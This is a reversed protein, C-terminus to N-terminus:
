FRQIDESSLAKPHFRVERIQGKFWYVQNLRMGLSIRGPGMPGFAINGELEKVGNVYHTMIAGDYALASWYWADGSHNIERDLLTLGSDASRNYLFTDLAWRGDPNIRTEILGRNDRKDHFHVFRQEEPGDSDPKFLIEVTFQEWGELPNVPVVLGDSKGNFALRTGNKDSVLQPEGLVKPQYGGIESLNDLTWIITDEQEKPATCYSLIFCLTLLYLVASAPFTKM